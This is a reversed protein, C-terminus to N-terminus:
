CINGMQMKRHSKLNGLMANSQTQIKIMQIHIQAKM